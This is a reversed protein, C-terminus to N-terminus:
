LLGVSAGIRLCRFGTREISKQRGLIWRLIIKRGIGLDEWHDRGKTSELWFGKFVEGMGWTHQM